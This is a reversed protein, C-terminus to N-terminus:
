PKTLHCTRLGLDLAADAVTRELFKADGVELPANVAPRVPHKQYRAAPRQDNLQFGRASFWLRALFKSALAEFGPAVVYLHM